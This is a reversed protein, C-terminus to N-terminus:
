STTIIAIFIIRIATGGDSNNEDGNDCGALLGLLCLLLSFTALFFRKKTSNKQGISM